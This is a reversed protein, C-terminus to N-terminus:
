LAFCRSVVLLRLHEVSQCEDLQGLDAVAVVHTREFLGRALTSVDAALPRTRRGSEAPM